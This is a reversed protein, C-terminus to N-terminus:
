GPAAPLLTVETPQDPDSVLDHNCIRDAAIDLIFVSFEDMFIAAIPAAEWACCDLHPFLRSAGM